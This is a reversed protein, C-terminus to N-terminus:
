LAREMAAEFNTVPPYAERDTVIDIVTPGDHAMAEALLKAVDSRSEATRGRAGLAEAAAAYDVHSFNNAEEVVRGNWRYKQEHYEFALCSNNLILITVPLGFRAATEIDSLHYCAGGDGTVCVVKEPRAMQVGLAAPLAWGLSGAARFYSDPRALPYLVSTWAAMYGTDAVVTIDGAYPELEALVALPSVGNAEPADETAANLAAYWTRVASRCQELWTTSAPGADRFLATLERLAPVLDANQCLEPFYPNAFASADHDIQLIKASRRPLSYGKTALGGLRTGLALVVDAKEMIDNAKVSSYRGVIGVFNPHSAAVAAKGGVTAAVPIGAASALEALEDWAAAMRVGEGVLIVPSKAKLLAEVMARAVAPDGGGVPIRAPLPLAPPIRGQSPKAFFNKPIDVHTPGPTAAVSKQIAQRLLTAASGQHEARANWITVPDFMSFQEIAQYEHAHRLTSDTAGTLAVVPSQAWYADALAAAVNAAGPGAQGYTIVPKGSARAFGDAMYVASAESHAVVMQINNDHLAIWLAQDGGTLLFFKDMGCNKLVDALDNAVNREM